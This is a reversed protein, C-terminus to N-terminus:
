LVEIQDGMDFLDVFPILDEDLPISCAVGCEFDNITFSLTGDILNAIVGIEDNVKISHQVYVNDQNLIYKNQNYLYMCYGEKFNNYENIPSNKRRIGVMIAMDDTKNIKIRWKNIQNKYLVRDGLIPTTWGNNDDVRKAIKCSPDVIHNDGRQWKFTYSSDTQKNNEELIKIQEKLMSIKQSQDEIINKLTENKAMLEAIEKDKDSSM